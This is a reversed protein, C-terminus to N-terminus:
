AQPERLLAASLKRLTLNDDGVFTSLLERAEEAAAYLTATAVDNAEREMREADAQRAAELAAAEAKQRAEAEQREIEARREALEAEERERQQRAEEAQRDREAQAVRDAEARAEAAKRDAEEQAKRAEAQEAEFAAREAALKEAAAKAKAEREQQLRLIEAAQRDLEAREEYAKHLKELVNGKAMSATPYYVEDIGDLDDGDLATIARKIDEVGAGFLKGPLAEIDAIRKAMAAVREREKREEEAKEAARADDWADRLNKLRIEEPEVLAVLEKQAGVVADAFQRADERAEKGTREITLRADRLDMAARHAQDRGAKNTVETIGVSKAALEKLKDATTSFSLANRARDILSLEQTV